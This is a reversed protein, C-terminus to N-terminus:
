VELWAARLLRKAGALALEPSQGPAPKIEFSVVPRSRSSFFGIDVLVRLFEALEALGNAGGPWGFPPHQDGYLENEAELVCNGVHVHRLCERALPLARLPREGLLPLHSLDLLLGFNTRELRSSIEVAEATPGILAKKDVDRDFPELLVQMGAQSAKDCIEQLSQVLRRKAEDRQAPGPDPGSLLALTKAGLEVAAEMEECVAKVAAQRESQSTSGLNLREALLRPQAACAIELNASRAIQGVQRRVSRQKIRGVEVVDLDPDSALRAFTEVIPGEGAMCEPFLMFHVVGKSRM